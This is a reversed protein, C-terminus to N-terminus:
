TTKKREKPKKKKTPKAGGDGAAQYEVVQGVWHPVFTGQDIQEEIAHWAERVHRRALDEAAAPRNAEITKLMELHEDRIQRPDRNARVFMGLMQYGETLRALLPNGSAQVLRFHFERDCQSMPELDGRSALDFIKRALEALERLDARCASECCLRAALGEFLERIQYAHRLGKADLGSVFMGLRDVAEVLGCFQLELLSERIVSQAVEFREALEQQVLRQGPQFEGSLILQQIADRVRHRALCTAAPKGPTPPPM